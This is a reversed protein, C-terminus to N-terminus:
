PPSPLRDLAVCITAMVKKINQPAVAPTAAAPPKMRASDRALLWSM